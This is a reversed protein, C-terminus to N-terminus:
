VCQRHICQVYRDDLNSCLGNVCPNSSCENIDQCDGTTPVTILYSLLMKNNITIDSYYHDLFLNRTMNFHQFIRHQFLSRFWPQISHFDAEPFHILNGFEVNGGGHTLVQTLALCQGHASWHTEWCPTGLSVKSKRPIKERKNRNHDLCGGRNIWTAITTPCCGQATTSTNNYSLSMILTLLNICYFSLSALM